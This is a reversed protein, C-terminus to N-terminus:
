VVKRAHRAPITVTFTAGRGLDGPSAAGISAGDYQELIKKAISLGFGQGSVVDDRARSTTVFPLFIEDKNIKIGEGTDSIKIILNKGNHRANIQIIQRPDGGGGGRRRKSRSSPM